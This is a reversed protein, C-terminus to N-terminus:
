KLIKMRKMDHVLAEPLNLPYTIGETPSFIATDKWFYETENFNAPLLFDGLLRLKKANLSGSKLIFFLRLIDSTM